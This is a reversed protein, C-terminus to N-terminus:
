AQAMASSVGGGGASFAWYGQSLDYDTDNWTMEPIYSKASTVLDTSGNAGNWYTGSGTEPAAATGDGTFESGGADTVYASSGPYDVALGFTAETDPDSETGEDCDAAGNDGAALIITQGQSNAQALTAEESKM